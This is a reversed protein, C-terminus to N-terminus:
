ASLSVELIEKARDVDKREVERRLEIRASAKALKELTAMLRKNIDRTSKSIGAKLDKLYTELEDFFNDSIRVDINFAYDVYSKIFDSDEKTIEDYFQVSRGGGKTAADDWRNYFVLDFKNMFYNEIPNQRKLSAFTRSFKGGIPKAAALVRIRAAKVGREDAVVGNDMANILFGRHDKKVTNLDDVCIIGLDTQSLMNSDNVELGLCSIANNSLIGVSNLFNYSYLGADNFLLVHMREKSFLQLCLAKKVDELGIIGRAVSRSITEYAVASFREFWNLGARRKLKLNVVDIFDKLSEDNTTLQLYENDPFFTFGANVIEFKIKELKLLKKVDEYEDEDKLFDLSFKQDESLPKMLRIWDFVGM